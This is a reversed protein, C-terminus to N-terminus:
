YGSDKAPFDCGLIKFFNRKGILCDEYDNNFSIPDTDDISIESNCYSIHNQIKAKNIKSELLDIKEDKKDM